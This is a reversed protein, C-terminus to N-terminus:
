TNQISNKRSILDFNIKIPKQAEHKHVSDKYIYLNKMRARALPGNRGIMRQVALRIVVEYKNKLDFYHPSEEKLGGVFGTHRYYIKNKFKAGTFKIKDANIIIVNDGCDMHPALFVNNKGRLIKSVFAALRGVVLNEADIVFWKKKISDQKLSITKFNM